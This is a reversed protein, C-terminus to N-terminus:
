TDILHIGKNKSGKRNEKGPASPKKGKCKSSTKAKKAPPINHGDTEKLPPRSKPAPPHPQETEPYKSKLYAEEKTKIESQTGPLLLSAHYVAIEHHHNLECRGVAEVTGQYTKTGFKVM